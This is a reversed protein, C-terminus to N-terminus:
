RSSTVANKQSASSARDEADLSTGAPHYLRNIMRTCTGIDHRRWANRFLASDDSLRRVLETVRPNGPQRGAARRLAGIM